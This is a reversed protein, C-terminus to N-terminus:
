TLLRFPRTMFGYYSQEATYHYAAPQINYDGSFLMTGSLGDSSLWPSPIQPLYSLHTGDWFSDYHVLFWPGWPMAAEYIQLERARHWHERAYARPTAYSHAVADSGFALLFRGIGADYTMTPHGVHGPDSLIPRADAEVRSWYAKGLDRGGIYFEWAARELVDSKPVRALFVHNGSEWNEDNSIAYVYNGLADPVGQYGPGFGVFSLGAFRPGLFYPTREDPINQWTRGYDDSYILALVGGHQSIANVFWCDAAAAEPVGNVLRYPEQGPDEFNYTYVAVYLRSGVALAGNVYLLDRMSTRRLDPFSSVYELTHDPPTGTARLLHAYNWPRGFNAGDDDVVYLAGDDGWAHWHMDSGSGPYKSAPALWEIGRLLTSPPYAIRRGPTPAVIDSNSTM